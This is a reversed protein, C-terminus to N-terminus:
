STQAMDASYYFNDFLTDMLSGVFGFGFLLGMGDGFASFFSALIDEASVKGSLLDSKSFGTAASLSDVSGSLNFNGDGDVSFGAGGFGGFGSGAGLGSGGAQALGGIGHLCFAGCSGAIAGLASFVGATLSAGAEFTQATVRSTLSAISEEADNQLTVVFDFDIPVTAEIESFEVDGVPHLEDDGEVYLANLDFFGEQEDEGVELETGADEQFEESFFQYESDPEDQAAIQDTLHAALNSEPTM